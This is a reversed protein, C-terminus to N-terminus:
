RQMRGRGRGMGVGGLGRGMGLGGGGRGGVGFKDTVTSGTIPKLEGSIIRGVVESVNGQTQIMKINSALLVQSSKPGFNGAVAYEANEGAVFQAAQIGAGGAASFGPNGVVQFGKIQGDEVEVITYSSCRGFVPSVNDDMGGRMTAVAIKM